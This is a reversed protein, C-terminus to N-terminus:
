VSRFFLGVRRVIFLFYDYLNLYYIIKIRKTHANTVVTIPKGNELFIFLIYAFFVSNIRMYVLIRIHRLRKFLDTLIYLNQIINPPTIKQLKEYLCIYILTLSTLVVNIIYM